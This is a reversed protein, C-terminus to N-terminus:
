LAAVNPQISKLQSISVGESNLTSIIKRLLNRAQELDSRAEKM